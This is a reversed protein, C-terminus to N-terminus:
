YIHVFSCKPCVQKEGTRGLNGDVSRINGLRCDKLTTEIAKHIFEDAKKSILTSARELLQRNDQIQMYEQSKWTDLVVQFQERAHDYSRKAANYDNKTRRAELLKRRCSTLFSSPSYPVYGQVSKLEKLHKTITDTESLLAKIRARDVMERTLEQIAGPLGSAHLERDLKNKWTQFNFRRYAAEPDGVGLIKAACQHSSLVLRQSCHDVCMIVWLM